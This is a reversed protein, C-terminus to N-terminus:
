AALSVTANITMMLTLLFLAQAKFVTALFFSPCLRLPTKSGRESFCNDKESGSVLVSWIYIVYLNVSKESLYTLSGLSAELFIFMM